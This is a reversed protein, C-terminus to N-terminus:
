TTLSSPSYHTIAILLSCHCVREIWAVKYGTDLSGPAGLEKNCIRGTSRMCTSMPAGRNDGDVAQQHDWRRCHWWRIANADSAASTVEQPQGRPLLKKRSVGHFSPLEATARTVCTLTPCLTKSTPRSSPSRTHKGRTIRSDAL